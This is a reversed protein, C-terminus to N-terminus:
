RSTLLDIPAKLISFDPKTIRVSTAQANNNQHDCFCMECEFPATIHLELDIGKEHWELQVGGASSPVVQPLPTQLRMVSNLVFMAFIATDERLPPAGYSDWGVPYQTLETLQPQIEAELKRDLRSYYEHWFKQFPPRTSDPKRKATTTVGPDGASADDEVYRVARNTSM